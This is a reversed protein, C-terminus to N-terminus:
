SRLKLIPKVSGKLRMNETKIDDSREDIKQCISSIITKHEFVKDDNNATTVIFDDDEAIESDLELADDAEDEEIIDENRQDEEEQHVSDSEIEVVKAHNTSEDRRLLANHATLLGLMHAGADEFDELQENCPLSMGDIQCNTPSLEEDGSLNGLFGAGIINYFPTCEMASRSFPLPSLDANQPKIKGYKIRTNLSQIKNNAAQQGRKLNIVEERLDELNDQYNGMGMGSFRKFAIVGLTVMLGFLFLCLISTKHKLINSIFDGLLQIM